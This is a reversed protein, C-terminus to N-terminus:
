FCNITRCSRRAYSAAGGTTERSLQKLGQWEEVDSLGELSSVLKGSLRVVFMGTDGTGALVSGNALSIDCHKWKGSLIKSYLAFFADAKEPSDWESSYQLVPKREKGVAAIRFQGGRLHPALASAQREDVFQRLLMTHDFEGVSGETIEEAAKLSPAQPLAPRAPQEHAFYRDPHMIQASDTPADTFVTMFAQRGLRRYAADFFKTGETYPFLLSQRIYLPAEKLVPFEAWSAPSSDVVTKLVDATPVPDQGAQKLTYAMMLWSAEGEVVASHALNEDDNSPTDEMFSALHFHQDALAHALEHALTVTESAMSSDELLFLKKEDYDYFAAAQETLLDITSKRLDFDQPVFGFMKLALEDAYIQEPKLTKKIRKNLFQRLQRKTMRGYPVTHKESLGTIESLSQVISNIQGFVPDTAAGSQASLLLLSMGGAIFALLVRRIM